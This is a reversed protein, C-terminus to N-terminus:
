LIDDCYIFGAVAWATQVWQKEEINSNKCTCKKPEQVGPIDPNSWVWAVAESKRSCEGACAPWTDKFGAPIDSDFPAQNSIDLGIIPNTPGFVGVPADVFDHEIIASNKCTCQNPNGPGSVTPDAWVWAAATAEGLPQSCSKACEEKTDTKSVSIDCPYPSQGCIDVGVNPSLFNSGIVNLSDFSCATLCAPSETAVCAFCRGMGQSMVCPSVCADGNSNLLCTICDKCPFGCKNIGERKTCTVQPSCDDGIGQCQQTAKSSGSCLGQSCSRTRVQSGVGCSSSCTGWAGWPTWLGKPDRGCVGGCYGWNGQGGVHTGRSDTFTSCWAKGDM